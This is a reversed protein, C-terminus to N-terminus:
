RYPRAARQGAQLLIDAISTECRLITPTAIDLPKQAWQTYTALACLIYGMTTLEITTIPLHQAIRGFVQLALWIFQLCTLTKAIGDAKSKDWVDKSDMAPFPLLGERVLHQLQRATIPFSMGDRTELVFGGMNAYFGHSLTWQPYGLQKFAIVSEKAEYRQGVAFYLVFEPGVLAQVMWRAKRLVRAWFGDNAAPLNLHLATWTCLLVTFLCSSLIDITGRGNPSSVWGQYVVSPTKSPPTSISAGLTVNSAGNCVHIPGAQVNYIQLTGLCVLLPSTFM